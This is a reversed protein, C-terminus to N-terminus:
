SDHEGLADLEGQLESIREKQQTILARDTRILYQLRKMIRLARTALDAVDETIKYDEVSHINLIYAAFERQLGKDNPLNSNFDKEMHRPYMLFCKERLFKLLRFEDEDLDPHFGAQSPDYDFNLAEENARRGAEADLREKKQRENEPEPM